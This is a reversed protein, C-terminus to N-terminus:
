NLKPTSTIDEKSQGKKYLLQGKLAKIKINLTGNDTSSPRNPNYKLYITIGKVETFKQTCKKICRENFTKEIFGLTNTVRKTSLQLEFLKNKRM